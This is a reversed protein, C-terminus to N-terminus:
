ARARILRWDWAAAATLTVFGSFELAPNYGGFMTWLILASGAAALGAPGARGHRRRGLAVAGLAFLAFLAIAAAWLGEDLGVAIGLASLATLMAVTGYCSALALVSAALGLWKPGATTVPAPKM